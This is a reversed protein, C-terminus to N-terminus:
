VNILLSLTMGRLKQQFASEPQMSPAKRHQFFLILTLITTLELPLWICVGDTRLIVFAANFDYVAGTAVLHLSRRHSSYCGLGM